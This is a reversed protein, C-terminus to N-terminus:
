TENDFVNQVLSTVTVFCQEYLHCIKYTMGVDEMTLVSLQEHLHASSIM